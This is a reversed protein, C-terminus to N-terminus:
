SVVELKSEAKLRRNLKLLRFCAIFWLVGSIQSIVVYIGQYPFYTPETIKGKFLFYLTSVFGIGTAILCFILWKTGPKKYACYYAIYALLCELGLSIAMVLFQYTPSVNFLPNYRIDLLQRTMILMASFFLAYLWQKKIKRGDEKM